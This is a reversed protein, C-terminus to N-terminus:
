AGATKPQAAKATAKKTPKKTPKKAPAKAQEGPPQEKKEPAHSFRTATILAHNNLEAVQAETFWDDPYTRKGKAHAMGCCYGGPSTTEILVPM